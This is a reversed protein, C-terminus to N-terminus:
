KSGLRSLPHIQQLGYLFSFIARSTGKAYLKIEINIESSNKHDYFTIIQCHQVNLNEYALYLEFLEPGLM